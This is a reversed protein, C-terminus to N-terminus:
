WVREEIPTANWPSLAPKDLTRPALEGLLSVLGERSAVLHRPGVRGGGSLRNESTDEFVDVIYGNVMREIRFTILNPEQRPSDDPM